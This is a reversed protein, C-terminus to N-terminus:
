RQAEEKQGIEVARKRPLRGSSLILELGIWTLFAISALGDSTTECRNPNSDSLTEQCSKTKTKM